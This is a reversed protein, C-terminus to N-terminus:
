TGLRRIADAPILVKDGIRKSELRGTKVWRYITQVNVRLQTAAEAATYFEGPRSEAEDALASLAKHLASAADRLAEPLDDLHPATNGM